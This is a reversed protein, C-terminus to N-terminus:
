VRPHFDPSAPIRDIAVTRSRAEEAAAGQEHALAISQDLHRRASRHRGADAEVMALERLAHPLNNKYSGALRHAGRAVQRRRRLLARRQRDDAPLAVYLERLATALWPLVPAVYEQRLGALKVAKRAEELLSVAQAPRDHALLRIAEALRVETSTHVDENRRELETATFAEPIDGGSARAWASLAIGAASWDGIETADSYLQAALEAARDMEGLRYYAFAIHWTATNTEWQDGTRALIQVAQQCSEICEQYRSAAYLVVGKFGLSQGQGWLDGLDTRMALSREAYTRGRQYWPIMTMVPAHESYAQALEPSPGFREAMNMERLHAWACRVRGSRFWYTYALRSYVHLTLRDRASMDRSETRVLIRPLLSHATQVLLEWIAGVWFGVAHRPVWRGLRRLADELQRASNAQDGRRFSVEGRKAEVAARALPDSSLHSARELQEDAESYRGALALVDALGEAVRARLASGGENATITAEAAEGAIVFNAEALGLAHRARAEEAAALAPALAEELRGAAHLHYALDFSTATGTRALADAAQGHLARRRSPTLGELVVERLKDHLFRVRSPGAPSDLVRRARAEEMATQAEAESLGNLSQALNM